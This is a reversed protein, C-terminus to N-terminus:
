AGRGGTKVVSEIFKFHMEFQGDEFVLIKKVLKDVVETNLDATSHLGGIIDAARGQTTSSIASLRSAECIQQEAETLEAIQTEYDQKMYKFDDDTIIDNVLSEYLSKLYVNCRELEAQIERLDGNNRVTDSPVTTIQKRLADLLMEKVKNESISVPVCDDGAYDYRTTCNFSHSAKKSRRRMAHGCHACFIKRSFINAEKDHTRTKGDGPYIAQVKAFMERSVIGEHTNETIVWESKPLHVPAHDVLKSKGQVMDGTYIRNKLIAYIVSKSWHIHSDAEKASALGISHFYRKPPLIENELLWNRIASVSQGSATMNFMRRVIDSAYPDAILKHCDDKSKLYGYPPFRGVFGGARINMQKTARIKRGIDLAYSENIMNKLSVMMGGSRIDASDYNDTIAVFRIGNMPFFKEIYYGTDIANRGLRSLDKTICCNIKGSELDALMATFGPRDFTQGSLGNDIYTEALTLEPRESIYAAIIAQQNEISDGKNRKDVASLRVYAGVRFSPAIVKPAAPEINRRSKRAM